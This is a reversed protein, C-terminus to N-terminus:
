NDPAGCVLWAQLLARENDPLPMGSDPPPMACHELDDLITGRWDHVDSHNDLPWPSTPDNANHCGNCRANFIPAIQTAYSPVTAPCV